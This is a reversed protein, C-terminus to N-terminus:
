PSKYNTRGTLYVYSVVSLAVLLWGAAGSLMALPQAVHPAKIADTYGILGGGATALVTTALWFLASPMSRPLAAAVLGVFVGVVLPRFLPTLAIASVALLDAPTIAGRQSYLIYAWGGLVTGALSGLAGIAMGKLLRM